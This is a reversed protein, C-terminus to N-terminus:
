VNSSCTRNHKIRAAKIYHLCEERYLRCRSVLMVFIKDRWAGNLMRVEERATEEAEGDLGVAHRSLELSSIGEEAPEGVAASSLYSHCDM